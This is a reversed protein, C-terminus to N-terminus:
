QLTILGSVSVFLCPVSVFLSTVESRFHGSHVVAPILVGSSCHLDLTNSIGSSLGSQSPQGPSPMACQIHGVLSPSTPLALCSALLPIKYITPSFRFPTPCLHLCMTPKLLGLLSSSLPFLRMEQM